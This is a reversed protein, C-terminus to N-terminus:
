DISQFDYLKTYHISYSTIVDIFKRISEDRTVVSAAVNIYTLHSLRDILEIDRLVLTSKTSIIAPTKHRILVRLVEPMLKLEAEAPQYSDTVGGINIIERKWGPRRLERDLVEALNTKAYITEFDHTESHPHQHRAYCYICDHACGRYLNLDWGYPIKRKLPHLASTCPVYYSRIAYM